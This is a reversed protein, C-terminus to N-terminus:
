SGTTCRVEQENIYRGQQQGIVDHIEYRKSILLLISTGRERIVCNGADKTTDARTNESPSTNKADYYQVQKGRM